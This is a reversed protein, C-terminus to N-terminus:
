TPFSPAFRFYIGLSAVEHSSAPNSQALYLSSDRFILVTAVFVPIMKYNFPAFSIVGHHMLPHPPTIARGTFHPSGMSIVAKSFRARCGSRLHATSSLSAHSDERLRQSIKCIGFGYVPTLHLLLPNIGTLLAQRPRLKMPQRTKLYQGSPAGQLM